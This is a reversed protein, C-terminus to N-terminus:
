AGQPAEGEGEASGDTVGKGASPVSSPAPATAAPDERVVKEGKILRKIEEGTLTEYELLGESLRIWDDRNDRDLIRRAEADAETVIRRIEQEIIM